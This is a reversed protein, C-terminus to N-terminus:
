DCNVESLIRQLYRTPEWLEKYCRYANLRYDNRNKLIEKVAPMLEDFSNILVGCKYEEIYKLSSLNTCIVPVGCKLYNGIKGAAVGMYEAKYGLEKTSYFAVGIAASCVLEDLEEDCVPNLSFTVPLQKTIVMDEIQKFYESGTTNHSTHFVVRCSEPLKHTSSALEKCLFWKGLGGSHLIISTDVPLNLKQQLFKSSSHREKTHTSNPLYLFQNNRTGCNKILFRSHWEDHTIIREALQLTKVESKNNIDPYELLFNWFNLSLLKKLKLIIECGQADAGM